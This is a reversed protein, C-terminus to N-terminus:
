ARARWHGAREGSHSQHGAHGGRHGKEARFIQAYRRMSPPGGPRLSKGTAAPISQAAWIMPMFGPIAATANSIRDNAARLTELRLVQDSAGALVGYALDSIDGMRGLGMNTGWPVVCARLIHEDVTQKRSRGILPTFCPMFQCHQDVFQLVSGIDVPARTIFLPHHVTEVRTPYDLTWRDSRRRSTRHFSGNDGAVIRANVTTLRDELETLLAALHAQIPELLRPAGSEALLPPRRRGARIM